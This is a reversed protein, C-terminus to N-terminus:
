EILLFTSKILTVTCIVGYQYTTNTFVTQATTGVVTTPKM